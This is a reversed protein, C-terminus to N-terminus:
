EGKGEALIGCCLEPYSVGLKCLGEIVKKDLNLSLIQTTTLPKLYIGEIREISIKASKMTEELSDVTYFRKHGLDLDNQSLEHMDALFGAYNGLRRNMVEANPVTVFLKGEPNLLTRYKQLIKEPEDVHELVFGLVIIDFKENCKFDEFYTKIIEAKCRPFNDKFNNIVETSGDLVTHKSFHKNFINTTFGHGLGLELLSMSSQCSEIIRNAYWTLMIENDFDYITKGEYAILHEDLKNKM